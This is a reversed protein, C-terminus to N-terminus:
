RAALQRGVDRLAVATGPEHGRTVDDVSAGENMRIIGVIIEDLKTWDSVLVAREGLLGRWQQVVPDGAVPNVILHFVHWFQTTHKLLEDTPIDAECGVGLFRKVQERTLSPHVCEDGITFLYGKRKRITIADCITKYTAFWWALSYSEGHNGGGNGELYIKEVQTVLPPASSEFQTVQLPARDVRADGLGMCCIAPDTVPRHRYLADMITGLGKRIIQEALVGMSGTEDAALIIPTSEPNAPSDVAERVKIKAPDLDPHLGTQSFIEDRTKSATSAQYSRYQNPDWRANGM